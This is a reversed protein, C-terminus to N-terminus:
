VNDYTLGVIDSTTPRRLNALIWIMIGTFDLEAAEAQPDGDQKAAVIMRYSGPRPPVRGTLM